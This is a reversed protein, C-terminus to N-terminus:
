EALQLGPPVAPKHEVKSALSNLAGQLGEELVPHYFPMALLDFVTLGQQIAWALEHALHEGGPIAMEAGLLKGDSGDGYVRLLGRAKGMVRSRAQRMFNQEGIAAGRAEADAFSMGVRCVNPDTFTIGLMAKRAFRLPEDRGANIGAIRGEDTAEHLVPRDGSLDGALFIPLGEVKMTAPDFAPVGRADVEVGFRGLDFGATNPRRGISVLVKDVVVSVEGASLKLAEGEESIEVAHGLHIPFDEELAQKAAEAVKPDTLGGIRDLADFGHVEVGLRALVQGLELGIVGLGVVAVRAPFDEQEFFVDSTLIRDGFAKWPGPVISSSGTALVITGARIREGNVEILDPELLKAYGDIFHGQHLQDTGDLTRAVFFDRMSRIKKMAAPIDISLGGAGRIGEDEFAARRHFDEAVQIAVKSPMCGVRACTTGMPGGNIFVFSKGSRSVQRLANRGATGAGIVAVDVMKEM